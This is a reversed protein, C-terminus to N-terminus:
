DARTGTLVTLEHSAPPFADFPFHRIALRAGTVSIHNANFYLVGVNQKYVPCFSRDCLEDAPHFKLAGTRRALEDLFAIEDRNETDYQMRSIGLAEINQGRHAFLGLESPPEFWPIPQPYALVVTKGAAALREVSQALGTRFRPQDQAPYRAFNEAIIITRIRDDEILNDLTSRNHSICLAQDSLQYNLSPPCASSTIEMISQGRKALEEGLAVVIEAGWSDAWVAAVPQAGLAGFLCNDKYDITLSEGSHCQERRRNYDGEAAFLQQAQPSFRGPMGNTVFIMAAAAAMATMSSAGWTFTTRRPAPRKLIPQEVFKWSATAALVAFAVLLATQLPSPTGYFYHHGFSLVPWHWLYLSYSIGGFFTFAPFSIARGVLSRGNVGACIILATGACPALAALGPWPTQNTYLVLGGVILALGAASVGDRQIQSARISPAYFAALAGLSLEFVRFPALYFAAKAHDLAGWTSLALAIVTGVILIVGLQRRVRAWILALLLPFFIYFQEEVALSWTHLLPKGVSEGAFYDSLAYFDFNSVFFVTSIATRSLEAYQHPDLLFLGAGLVVALMTFLAPFLRRIRREYFGAISMQGRQLERLLIGTILFGSIVFFIDVGIFGGPLLAPAAHYVVVSLVAIARLGQIDTRHASDRAEFAAAGIATM